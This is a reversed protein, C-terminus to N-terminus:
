VVLLYRGSQPPAPGLQEPAVTLGESQGLGSLGINIKNPVRKSMAKQEVPKEITLTILSTM